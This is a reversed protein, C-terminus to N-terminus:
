LCGPRGCPCGSGSEDDEEDVDIANEEVYYFYAGDDEDNTYPVTEEYVTQRFGNDVEWQRATDPNVAMLVQELGAQPDAELALVIQEIEYPRRSQSFLVETESDDLEFLQTAVDPVFQFFRPLTADDADPAVVQDTVVGDRLGELVDSNNPFRYGKSFVAHGAICCATGCDWPMTRNTAMYESVAPDLNYWGESPQRVPRGAWVAQNWGSHDAKIADWVRRLLPIGTEEYQPFPKIPDGNTTVYQQETM